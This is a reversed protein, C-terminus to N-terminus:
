SWETFLILPSIDEKEKRCDATVGKSVKKTGTKHYRYGDAPTSDKKDEKDPRDTENSNERFSGAGAMRELGHGTMIYDV